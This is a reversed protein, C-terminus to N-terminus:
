IKKKEWPYKDYGYVQFYLLIKNISKFNKIYQYKQYM